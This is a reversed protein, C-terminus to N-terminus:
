GMTPHVLRRLDLRQRMSEYLMIGAAVSVNFSDTKGRQPIIFRQDSMKAISPSIGRGEAGLVFAVPGTLDLDMLRDEAELDSALVRVGSQQLYEIAAPLSSERCVPIDRLAGASTKLAEANLLPTKNRGMVIAHAGAIEASRAIAGFNRVDTVGDLLVFLPMASQEFLLPLLDELRQFGVPAMFAIVGQHNGRVIKNLRDKPVMQLPINRDRTLHRLEKELEGRTDRQLLVKDISANAQIAEVVPHRGFIIQNASEKM